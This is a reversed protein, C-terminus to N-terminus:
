TKKRCDPGTEYIYLLALVAPFAFRFVTSTASKM